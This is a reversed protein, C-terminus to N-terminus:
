DIQASTDYKGKSDKVKRIILERSLGAKTMLIIEENTLTETQAFVSFVFCILIFFITLVKKCM